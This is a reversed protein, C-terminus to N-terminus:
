RDLYQQLQGAKKAIILLRKLAPNLAKPTFEFFQNFRRAAAAAALCFPWTASDAAQMHKWQKGIKKM